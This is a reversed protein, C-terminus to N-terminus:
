GQGQSTTSDAEYVVISWGNNVDIPKFMVSRMQGVSLARWLSFSNTMFFYGSLLVNIIVSIGIISKILDVLSHASM